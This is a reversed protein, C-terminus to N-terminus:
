DKNGIVMDIIDEDSSDYSLDMTAEVNDDEADAAIDDELADDIDTGEKVQVGSPLGGGCESSPVDADTNDNDDNGDDENSMEPDDGEDLFSDIDADEKVSADDTAQYKDEGEVEADATPDADKVKGNADDGNDEGNIPKDKGSGDDSPYGLPDIAADLSFDDSETAIDPDKKIYGTVTDADVPKGNAKGEAYDDERNDADLFKDIDSEGNKELNKIEQRDCLENEEAGEIDSKKAGQLNDNDPGLADRLDDPDAEDDTNHLEEFDVGTLPEGNEKVGCVTDILEDDEDFIVDFDLEDNTCNDFVSDMNKCATLSM